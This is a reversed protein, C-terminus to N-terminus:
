SKKYKMNFSAKIWLYVISSLFVLCQDHNTASVFNNVYFYISRFTNSEGYKSSYDSYDDNTHNRMHMDFSAKIWSYFMSSHSVLRTNLLRWFTMMIRAPMITLLSLFSDFCVFFGVNILQLFTVYRLIM